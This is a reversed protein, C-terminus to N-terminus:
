ARSPPSFGSVTKWIDVIILIQSSVSAVVKKSEELRTRVGALDENRALLDNIERDVLNISQECEIPHSYVNV